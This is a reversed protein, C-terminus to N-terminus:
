AQQQNRTPEAGPITPLKDPNRVIYVASIQDGDLDVAMVSDLAGTEKNFLLAGVGGNVTVFQWDRIPWSKRALGSLFATVHSIGMVPNLAATVKGGGDSYVVIDEKLLQVFPNIDGTHSAMLFAHQLAQQQKPDLPFRKKAGALKEKARHYLQRSNAETLELLGALEAYEVDFSEKLLFVARETPTLKELLLMFGYSVDIRAEIQRFEQNVVPEPLWTGRYAERQRKVAALHNLSRNIVMKALYAQPHQVDEHPVTVWNVLSEQVIDESVAVEGTMRYALAFLQPQYSAVVDQLEM